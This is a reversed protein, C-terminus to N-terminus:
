GSLIITLTRGIPISHGQDLKNIDLLKNILYRPSFGQNGNAVILLNFWPFTIWNPDNLGVRISIYYRDFKISIKMLQSMWQYAMDSIYYMNNM